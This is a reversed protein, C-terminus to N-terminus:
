RDLGYRFAPQLDRTAAADEKSEGRRSWFRYDEDLGPGLAGCGYAGLDRAQWLADDVALRAGTGAAGSWLVRLAAVMDEPRDDYEFLYRVQGLGDILYIYTSHDVAYDGQADPMGIEYQVAYRAVLRDIAERAGTLGLVDLPFYDLYQRLVDPADRKPDVSVFLYALQEADAGLLEGVRVLRSLTTPCFDPCFTYGFFLLATQGRLDRLAFRDGRQDVLSFDGGIDAFPRLDFAQVQAVSPEPVPETRCGCLVVGIMCCLRIFSERMMNKGHPFCRFNLCKGEEGVM